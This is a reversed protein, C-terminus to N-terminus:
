AGLKEIEEALRQLGADEPYLKLAQELMQRARGAHGYELHIRVIRAFLKAADKHKGRALYYSLLEEYVRVRKDHLGARRYVIALKEYNEISPYLEVSREFHPIARPYDGVEAYAAGLNSQVTADHPTHLANYQWLALSHRWILTQQYALGAFGALVAMVALLGLNHRLQRAAGPRPLTLRAAGLGALICFSITTVYAYRDAMGQLGTQVLGLVPFVTVFYFLWAVLWLPQGRRWWLYLTLVFILGVGTLPILAAPWAPPAYPYFPLLHFPAIFKSIYAILAQAANFIRADLGVHGLSSLSEGASQATLTLAITGLSLLGFPVKEWIVRMGCRLRQLPYFDLLLLVAPLSVAMPKATLALAHCVLALIFWFWAARGNGARTYFVYCIVAPFVFFLSLVEKREAVWAVPEVHLPHLAFVLAAVAAAFLTRDQDAERGGAKAAVLVPVLFLLWLANAMHLLISGLHHPWPSLEFLAYDVAHSLWTLPYWNGHEKMSTLMWILNEGQLAKIHPNLIVFDLTDWAVFGHGRVASYSTATALLVIIAAVGLRILFRQQM